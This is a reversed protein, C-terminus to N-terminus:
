KKQGLLPLKVTGQDGVPGPVPSPAPTLKSKNQRQILGNTIGLVSDVIVADIGETVQYQVRM